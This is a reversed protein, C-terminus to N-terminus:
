NGRRNGAKIRDEPRYEINKGEIMVKENGLEFELVVESKPVVKEGKSTEITFTNKTEDIIKGKMNKRGEDTSEFVKVNLGIMEHMAINEKTICYNKSELM